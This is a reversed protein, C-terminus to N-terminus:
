KVHCHGKWSLDESESIPQLGLPALIALCNRWMESMDRVAEGLHWRVVIDSPGLKESAVLHINERFENEYGAVIAHLVELRCPAIQVRIKQDRALAPLIEAAVASIEAVGYRESLTPLMSQFAAIMFKALEEALMADSLSLSSRADEVEKVISQFFQRIDKGRASEEAVRGSLFGEDWAQSRCSELEDKTFLDPKANETSKKPAFPADFDEILFVPGAVMADTFLSM